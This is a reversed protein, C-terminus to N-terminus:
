RRGKGKSRRPSGAKTGSTSGRSRTTNAAASESSDHRHQRRAARNPALLSPDGGAAWYTHATERDATIWYMATLAALKFRSWPVEALLPEYTESLCMRYLDLEEADDLADTDPATGTAMVRAALTTIKEVRLGDEAPPSPIRYIRQVGDKGKVPLELYDDFFDDLAEFAAGM